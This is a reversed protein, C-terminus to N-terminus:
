NKLESQTIDEHIVRNTSSIYKIVTLTSNGTTFKTELRVERAKVDTVRHFNDYIDKIYMPRNPFVSRVYPDYLEMNGERNEIYTNSNSEILTRSFPNLKYLIGKRNDFIFVGDKDSLNAQIFDIAQNIRFIKTSQGIFELEFVNFLHVKTQGVSDGKLLKINNQSIFNCKRDNFHLAYLPLQNNIGGYNKDVDPFLDFYQLM